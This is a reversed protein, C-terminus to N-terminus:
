RQQSSVGDGELRAGKAGAGGRVRRVIRKRVLSRGDADGDRRSCKFIMRSYYCVTRDESGSGRHRCPCTLVEHFETWVEAHVAIADVVVPDGGAAM